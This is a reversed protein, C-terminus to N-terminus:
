SWIPNLVHNLFLSPKRQDKEQGRAESCVMSSSIAVKGSMGLLTLDTFTIQV